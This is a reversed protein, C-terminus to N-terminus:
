PGIWAIESDDVSNSTVQQLGTGDANIVYIEGGGNGPGVFALRAGDPSWQVEQVSGSFLTRDEGGEAPVVYLGAPAYSIFALLGGDPSWVPAQATPLDSLRVRRGVGFPQISEVGQPCEPPSDPTCSAFAIRSGDPSWAPNAEQVGDSTMRSRMGNTVDVVALDLDAGPLCDGQDVVGAYAVRLPPPSWTFGQLSPGFDTNCGTALERAATGDNRVALLPFRKVTGCCASIGALWEGDPSWQLERAEVLDGLESESADSLRRVITHSGDRTFALFRGDRSAVPSADAVGEPSLTVLGSGDPLMAYLQRIGSRTSTFVIFGSLPSRAPPEGAPGTGEGSCGALGLALGLRLCAARSPRITVAEM